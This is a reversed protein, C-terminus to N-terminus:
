PTVDPTETGSQSTKFDIMAALDALSKTGSYQKGQYIWTPYSKIERAECEDPNANEGSADCEVYNLYKAAEDFLKKQDKCHPCWYAGYLVAGKETLSKALKEKYEINENSNVITGPAPGAMIASYDQESKSSAEKKPKNLYILGGALAVIAVTIGIFHPLKDKM